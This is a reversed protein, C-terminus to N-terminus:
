TKVSLLCCHIIISLRDKLPVKISMVVTDLSQSVHQFASQPYVLFVSTDFASINDRSAFCAVILFLIPDFDRFHTQLKPFKFSSTFIYLAQSINTVNDFKLWLYDRDYRGLPAYVTPQCLINFTVPYFSAPWIATTASDM